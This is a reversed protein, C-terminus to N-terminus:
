IVQEGISGRCHIPATLILTYCSIFVNCYGCTIWVVGTMLGDSRKQGFYLIHGYDVIVSGGTFLGGGQKGRVDIVDVPM